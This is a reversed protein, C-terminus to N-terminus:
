MQGNQQFIQCQGEGIKVAYSKTLTPMGPSSVSVMMEDATQKAQAVGQPGGLTDRVEPKVANYVQLPTEPWHRRACWYINYANAWNTARTRLQAARASCGITFALGILLVASVLITATLHRKSLVRVVAM